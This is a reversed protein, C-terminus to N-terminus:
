EDTEELAEVIDDLVTGNLAALAEHVTKAPCDCNHPGPGWAHNTNCSEACAIYASEYSLTAEMDVIAKHLTRLKKVERHLSEQEARFTAARKEAGRLLSILSQIDELEPCTCDADDIYDDCHACGRYLEELKAEKM